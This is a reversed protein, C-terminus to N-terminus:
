GSRSRRTSWRAIAGRRRLLEDYDPPDGFVEDRAKLRDRIERLFKADDSSDEFQKEDDAREANLGSELEDVRAYADVLKRFDSERQLRRAIVPRHQQWTSLWAKNAGTPWRKDRIATRVANQADRLDNDILRLGTRADLRERRREFLYAAGVGVIVGLFGFIAEPV